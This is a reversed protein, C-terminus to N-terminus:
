EGTVVKILSEYSAALAESLVNYLELLGAGPEINLRGTITAMIQNARDASTLHSAAVRFDYLVFFPSLLAPVNAGNAVPELAMQLRKLSGLNKPDAGANKIITGLAANDLSEVHIKNLTDAVHRREKLTDVPPANLAVALAFTEDDLHALRRVSAGPM